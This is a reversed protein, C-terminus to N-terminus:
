QVYVDKLHPMKNCLYRANIKGSRDAQFHLHGLHPFRNLLLAQIREWM